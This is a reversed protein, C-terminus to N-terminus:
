KNKLIKYYKKMRLFIKIDNTVMNKSKRMEEESMDQYRESTM